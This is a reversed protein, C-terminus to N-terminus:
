RSNLCTTKSNSKLASEFVSDALTAIRSQAYVQGERYFNELASIAVKQIAISAELVRSIEPISRFEHIRKRATSLHRKTAEENEFHSQWYKCTKCNAACNTFDHSLFSEWGSPALSLLLIQDDRRKKRNCDTCSIVVNEPIHLGGRFRNMGDLHEVAVHKPVLNQSCYPCRNKFFDTAIKGYLSSNVVLGAELNVRKSIDHLLMSVLKNAVDSKARFTAIKLLHSSEFTM